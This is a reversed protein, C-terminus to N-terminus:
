TDFLARFTGRSALNSISGEVLQVDGVARAHVERLLADGYRDSSELVSCESWENWAHLFVVNQDPHWVENFSLAEDLFHGFLEPNAGVVIPAHPYRDGASLSGLFEGRVSADWGACVVPFFPCDLREQLWHWEIIRRQVLEAYDQIPAGLWTPLLGYGTVGDIPLANALALNRVDVQGLLGLLFPPRGVKQEIASRAYRLM